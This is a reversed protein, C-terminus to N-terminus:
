HLPSIEFELLQELTSFIFILLGVGPVSVQAQIYEKGALVQSCVQLDPYLKKVEALSIGKKFSIRPLKM